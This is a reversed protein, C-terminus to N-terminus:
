EHRSTDKIIQWLVVGLAVFSFILLFIPFSNGMRQDLKYGAFVALGLIAMMQFALGIYRFLLNDPKKQPKKSKPNEM